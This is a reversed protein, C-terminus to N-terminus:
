SRADTTAADLEPELAIEKRFALVRDPYVVQTLYFPSM